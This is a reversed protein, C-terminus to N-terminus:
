GDPASGKGAVAVLARCQAAGTKALWPHTTPKDQQVPAPHFHFNRTRAAVRNLRTTPVDAIAAPSNYASGLGASSAIHAAWMNDPVAFALYRDILKLSLQERGRGPV